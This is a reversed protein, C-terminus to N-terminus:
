EMIGSAILDVVKGTIGASLVGNYIPRKLHRELKKAHRVGM